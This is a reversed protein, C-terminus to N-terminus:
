YPSFFPLVNVPLSHFTLLQFKPYPPFFDMFMGTQFFDMDSVKSSTREGRGSTHLKWYNLNLGPDLFLHILFTEETEELILFWQVLIEMM